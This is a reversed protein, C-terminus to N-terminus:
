RRPDPFSTLLQLEGDVRKLIVVVRRSLIIRGKKTLTFGVDDSTLRRLQLHHQDSSALWERIKASNAKLTENV